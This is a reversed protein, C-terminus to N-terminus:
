QQTLGFQNTLKIWNLLEKQYLGLAKMLERSYKEYYRKYYYQGDLREHIDNTTKDFEPLDKIGQGFGRLFDNLQLLHVCAKDYQNYDYAKQAPQIFDQLLMDTSFLMSGM